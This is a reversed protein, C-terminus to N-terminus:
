ALGEPNMKSVFQLQRDALQCWIFAPTMSILAIYHVKNQLLIILHFLPRQDARQDFPFSRLGSETTGINAFKSMRTDREIKLNLSEDKFPIRRKVM